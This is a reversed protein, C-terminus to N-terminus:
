VLMNTYNMPNIDSYNFFKSIEGIFNLLLQGTNFNM